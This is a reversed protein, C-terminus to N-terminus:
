YNAQGAFSGSKPPINVTVVSTVGDNSYGNAAALSLAASQATSGSDVGHNSWWNTYLDAGAALAAADATAQAHRREEMLRGGDMGLAAVGVVATLSLVLWAVIAGRRSVNDHHRHILAM